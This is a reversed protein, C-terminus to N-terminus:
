YLKSAVGLATYIYELPDDPLLGVIEDDYQKKLFYIINKNNSLSYWGFVIMRNEVTNIDKTLLYEKADVTMKFLQTTFDEDDQRDFYERNRVNYYAKLEEDNAEYFGTNEPEKPRPFVPVLVPCNLSYKSSDAVWKKLMIKADELDNSTYYTQRRTANPRVILYTENDCYPPIYLLYPYHFEKDSNSEREIITNEDFMVYRLITQESYLYFAAINIVIFASVFLIKIAKRVINEKPTKFRDTILKLDEDSIVRRPIVAIQYPSYYILVIKRLKKIKRIYSGPIIRKISEQSLVVSDKTIQLNTQEFPQPNKKIVRRIVIKNQLYFVILVILFVIYWKVDTRCTLYEQPTKLYYMFFIIMHILQILSIVHILKTKEFILNSYENSNLTYEINFLINNEM